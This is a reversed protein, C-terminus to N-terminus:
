KKGKFESKNKFGDWVGNFFEKTRSSMWEGVIRSKNLNAVTFGLDDETNPQNDPGCSSVVVRIGYEDKTCQYRLDNGWADQKISVETSPSALYFEAETKVLKKTNEIRTEHAIARSIATVAVAIIILVVFGGVVFYPIKQRDVPYM